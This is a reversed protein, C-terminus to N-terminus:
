NAGQQVSRASSERSAIPALRWRGYAVLAVLLGVCLPMLAQALGSTVLMITTAGIMIIVLGAAALPTLYTRVRFLGPLLLGMAGLVECAGIFRVFPGPFHVQQTLVAVPLTLKAIGTFLYLLALVVQIVWLIVNLKKRNVAM